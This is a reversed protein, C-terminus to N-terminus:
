YGCRKDRVYHCLGALSSCALMFIMQVQGTLRQRDPTHDTLEVGVTLGCAPMQGTLLLGFMSAGAGVVIQFQNIIIQDGRSSKFYLFICIYIFMCINRNIAYLNMM